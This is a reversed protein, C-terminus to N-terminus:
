KSQRTGNEEHAGHNYDEQWSISAALYIGYDRFRFFPTM